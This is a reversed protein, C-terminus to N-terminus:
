ITKRERRELEETMRKIERIMDYSRRLEEPSVRPKWTPRTMWYIFHLHGIELAMKHRKEKLLDTTMSSYSLNIM